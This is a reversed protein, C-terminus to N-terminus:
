EATRRNVNVGSIRFESLVFNTKQNFQGSKSALLQASVQFRSQIAKCGHIEMM